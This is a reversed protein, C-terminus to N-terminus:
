VGGWVHWCADGGEELLLALLLPGVGLQQHIVLHPTVAPAPTPIFSHNISQNYRKHPLLAYPGGPSAGPATAGGRGGVGGQRGEEKYGSRGSCFRRPPRTFSCDMMIGSISNAWASFPPHFSPEGGRGSGVCGTQTCATPQSAEGRGQQEGCGESAARLRPATRTQAPGSGPSPPHASGPVRANTQKLLHLWDPLWDAPPGHRPLAAFRPCVLSAGSSVNHACSLSLTPGARLRFVAPAPTRALTHPCAHVACACCCPAALAAAGCVLRPGVDALAQRGARRLRGLKSEERGWKAARRRM